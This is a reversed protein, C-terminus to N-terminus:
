STVAVERLSIHGLPNIAWGTVSPKLLSAQPVESVIIVPMEAIFIDQLQDYLAKREEQDLTQNAEDAIRLAEDNVWQGNTLYTKLGFAVFYNPDAFGPWANWSVEFDRPRYQSAWVALEDTQINLTIGAEALGAQWITATQDGAPYSAPTIVTFEFGEDIGAEALLAKAQEPDYPYGELEKYAWSDYPIWSWKPRGEGGFVIQQVADKDLCHAMAQRLKANTRIVESNNGMLEFMQIGSTAIIYPTVEDSDQFTVATTVPLDAVVDVAGAQLNTVAVQAEPIIRYTVTELTPVGSEWHDPNRELTIHDNPVWEVFRFPGSGIPATEIEAEAEPPIISLQTLGDIFDARPATLTLKVTYKDVVEYSAINAVRSAWVAKKDAIRRYSSEVHSAEVEQGNHYTAGQRLHFLYTTEDPTDWSEALDPLYELTPGYRVLSSFVNFRITNSYLILQSAHPDTTDIDGSVAITIAGAAGQAAALAAPATAAATAPVAGVKLAATAKLLARRSVSDIQLSM